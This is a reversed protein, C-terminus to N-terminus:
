QKNGGGQGGRGRPRFKRFKRPRQGRFSSFTTAQPQQTTNVSTPIPRSQHAGRGRQRAFPRSGRFIRRPNSNLEKRIDSLKDLTAEPLLPGDLPATRLEAALTPKGSFLDAQMASMFKDRGALLLNAHITSATSMADKHAMNVSSIVARSAPNLKQINEDDSLITFLNNATSIIERLFSINDSIGKVLSPNLKIGSSDFSGRDDSRLFSKARESPQLNLHEKEGHRYFRRYKAACNPLWRGKGIPSDQFTKKGLASVTGTAIQTLWDLGQTFFDSSSFVTEPHQARKNTGPILPFIDHLIEPYHKRFTDIILPWNRPTTEGLASPDVFDHLSQLINATAVQGEDLARKRASDLLDMFPKTARATSAPLPVQRAVPQSTDTMPLSPPVFTKIVKLDWPYLIKAINLSDHSAKVKVIGTKPTLLKFLPKTFPEYFLRSIVKETIKPRSMLMKKSIDYIEELLFFEDTKLDVSWGFGVDDVFYFFGDQAIGKWLEIPADILLVRFCEPLDQPPDIELEEDINTIISHEEVVEQYKPSSSGVPPQQNQLKLDITSVLAAMQDSFKQSIQDMSQKIANHISEERDNAEKRLSSGM